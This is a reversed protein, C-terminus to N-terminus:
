VGRALLNKVVPKLSVQWDPPRWGFERQFRDTALCNCVPRRAPTPYESTPIDAIRACPGGFVSSADFIARAFEAWSCCGSGCLHYTGFRGFGVDKRVARAMRVIGDALDAASTPNGFQDAVVAIEDRDGALRLMTKVFNSGIESYLWATRLVFHRDTIASVAREGELKSRGYVNLPSTQDCEGYAGKKEGPFVYDTSIQIVPAGIRAAARAANAAGDRNVAFVLETESEARDVATYAAANVVVDPRFRALVRDISEPDCIDLEPRGVAVIEMDPEGLEALKTALQGGRGTVLLRM